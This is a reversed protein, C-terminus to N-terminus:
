KEKPNSLKGEQTQLKGWCTVQMQCSKDQPTPSPPTVGRVGRKQVMFDFQVKQSSGGTRQGQRPSEEAWSGAGPGTKRTCWSLYGSSM